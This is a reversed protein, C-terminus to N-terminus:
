LQIGCSQVPDVGFTSASLCGLGTVDDYYGCTNDAEHCCGKLKAGNYPATVIVAPSCGLLAAPRKLQGMPECAQAGPLFPQMALGCSANGAAGAAKTTELPPTSCCAAISVPLSSSADNFVYNACDVAGNAGVCSLTAPPVEACACQNGQHCSWLAEAVDFAEGAVAQGANVEACREQCESGHCDTSRMCEFIATCGSTQRCLAYAGPCNECACSDCSGVDDCASGACDDASSGDCMCYTLDANCEQTNCCQSIRCEDMCDELESGRCTCQALCSSCGGCNESGSGQNSQSCLDDAAPPACEAECLARESGNCVCTAVCDDGCDSCGTESTCVAGPDAQCQTNCEGFGGGGCACLEFCSTCGGCSAEPTCSDPPAEAGCQDKCVSFREGTCICQQFCGGCDQCANAQNCSPSVVPQPALCTLCSATVACTRIGAAARFAAGNVGGNSQIESACENLCGGSARDSIECRTQRLCQWIEACGADLQCDMLPELCNECVCGACDTAGASEACRRRAECEPQHVDLCGDCGVGPRCGDYGDVPYSDVSDLKRDEIGLVGACAVLLLALSLGAGRWSGLDLWAMM